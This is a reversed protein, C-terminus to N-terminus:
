GQDGTISSSMGYDSIVYKFQQLGSHTHGVIHPVVHYSEHHQPGLINLVRGSIRTENKSGTIKNTTIFLVMDEGEGRTAIPTLALIFSLYVRNKLEKNYSEIM